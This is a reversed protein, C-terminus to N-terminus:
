APRIPARDGRSNRLRWVGLVGSQRVVTVQLDQMTSRKQEEAAGAKGERWARTSDRGKLMKVM